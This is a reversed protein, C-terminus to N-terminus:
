TMWKQKFAKDKWVDFTELLGDVEVTSNKNWVFM